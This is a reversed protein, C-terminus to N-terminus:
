GRPSALMGEIQRRADEFFDGLAEAMRVLDGPMDRDSMTAVLAHAQTDFSTVAEHLRMLRAGGDDPAQALTGLEQRVAEQGQRLTEIMEAFVEYTESM